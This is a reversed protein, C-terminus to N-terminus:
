RASSRRRRGDANGVCRPQALRFSLADMPGSPPVGVDWYGLRGPYDQVRRRRARRRAGRHTRPQYAFTTSCARTRRRGAVFAPRALSRRAPLRLNTEIGAIRTAALADRLARSRRTARRRRARHDQRADPRLVADGRHRARGLDRRARGDPFAVETLVGASPQFDRAPDEAYVRVEIAAGARRPACRTSIAAARGGGAAGDVRRSRRRDGGRHRRARGAPAHQGRPLLVRRTARRARVRGHGGLPLAVAAGLRVAADRLRQARRRRRPGAGADGRRGEPQAAAASCDREGLAVCAARATASSRCRSTARARRRLKELFVGADSSTARAGAARVADFATPAARRRRRLPAHRHRRRGGHEQADGPYGIRARRACRRRRRRRAARHGAAAARGRRRPWRARRTSSASPACRSRRRASSRSARGGRLAEAFDANESLFGYGPHIAEAGTRARPRSSARRRRPLERGGAAAGICCRRTPRARRAARARRGRLLGRGLAIGMRRLTRIIRCAIEGRNAILVKSFM